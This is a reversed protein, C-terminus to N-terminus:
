AAQRFFQREEEILEKISPREFNRAIHKALNPYRAADINEGAHMLNVFPSTVAIDAVSFANGVMFERGKAQEDLWALLPPLKNKLADEVAAEDTTQGMLRPGIIRQFFVTGAAAIVASDSYEEFFLARAFDEANEPYLAPKPHTRELYAIIVSSDPIHVGDRPTYVPIKGLPSMKKFEASVNFPIVPDLDYPIGKEKLAIRTKRVFPSLAAGHLTSM